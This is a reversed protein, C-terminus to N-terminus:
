AYETFNIELKTLEGKRDYHAYVPFVGDGDRTRSAVGAGPHGMKYVLQHQDSLTTDCVGRYSFEGLHPATMIVKEVDKDALMQNMSKKTLNLVQDYNDFWYLAGGNEPKIPTTPGFPSRYQFHNGQKDKYVRIDDMQTEPLWESDVYCPDTIMVQGSDVGVVGIQKKM